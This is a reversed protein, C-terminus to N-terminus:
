GFLRKVAAIIKSPEKSGAVLNSSAVKQTYDGSASGTAGCPRLQEVPKSYAEKLAAILESNDEWQPSTTHVHRRSDAIFIYRATLYDKLDSKSRAEFYNINHYPERMLKKLAKLEAEKAKRDEHLRKWDM